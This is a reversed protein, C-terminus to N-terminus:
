SADLLKRISQLLQRTDIPKACYVKVGAAKAQEKNLAESLGTNLIIPLQPNIALIEKTLEIGTMYPM